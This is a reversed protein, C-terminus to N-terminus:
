CIFSHQGFILKVAMQRLQKGRNDRYMFSLQYRSCNWIILRHIIRGLCNMSVLKMNKSIGYHDGFIVFITNEYLGEEKVMEFFRELARDQYRVTAVYRNVVDVGTEALEILQDEEELLFPFHNTLTIFKALYPEPLSILDEM